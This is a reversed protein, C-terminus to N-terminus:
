MTSSGGSSSSTAGAAVAAAWGRNSGSAGKIERDAIVPMRVSSVICSRTWIPAWSNVASSSEPDVCLKM